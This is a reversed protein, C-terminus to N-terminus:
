CNATISSLHLISHIRNTKQLKVADGLANFRSISDDLRRVDMQHEGLGATGAFVIQKEMTFDSRHLSRQVGTDHDAALMDHIVADNRAHM